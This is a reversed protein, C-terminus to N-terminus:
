HFSYLKPRGGHHRVQANLAFALIGWDRGLRNV